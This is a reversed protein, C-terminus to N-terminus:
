FRYAAAIVPGDLTVDFVFPDDAYDIRLHRWGLSATWRRGWAHSAMAALQWTSKSALGFGGVDGYASATWGKGIPVAVRAALVPDAWTKVVGGGGSALPGKVKVDGDFSTVRVGALLDLAAKPEDLVRYGGLATAFVNRVDLNAERAATERLVINKSASLDIYLADVAAIYRDKRAEVAGMLGFDLANVVDGFTLDAHAPPVKATGGSTGEFGAMWLYPTATVTWGPGTPDAAPAAQAFAAAPASAAAALAATLRLAVRRPAPQSGLRM